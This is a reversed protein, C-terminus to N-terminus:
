SAAALDAPIQKAKRRRHFLGIAAIAALGSAFLPLAAPVPTTAASMGDPLTLELELDFPVNRAFIDTSILLTRAIDSVELAGQLAVHSTFSCFTRPCNTAFDHLVTGFVSFAPEPVVSGHQDLVSFSSFFEYSALTAPNSPDFVPLTGAHEIARVAIEEPALINGQLFITGNLPLDFTAASVQETISAAISAALAVMAIAIYQLRSSM